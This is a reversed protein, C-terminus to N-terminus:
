PSDEDLAGLVVNEFEDRYADGHVKAGQDLARRERQEHPLAAYEDSQEFYNYYGILVGRTGLYGHSPYWITGIDLNTDTIGGFIREDEEWFRRRFQLGMKGTSM